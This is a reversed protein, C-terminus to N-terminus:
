ADPHDKRVAADLRDIEAATLAAAAAMSDMEWAPSSAETGINDLIAQLRNHSAGLLWGDSHHERDHEPTYGQEIQRRREHMIAAVGQWAGDESLLWALDDEAQTRLRFTDSM